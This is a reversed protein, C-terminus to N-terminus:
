PQYEFELFQCFGRVNEDDLYTWLEQKAHTRAMALLLSNALAKQPITFRRM